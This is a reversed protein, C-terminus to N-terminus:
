AYCDKNTRYYPIVDRIDKIGSLFCLLKEFHIKYGGQPAYGENITEYYWDLNKANDHLEDNKLSGVIVESLNPFVLEVSNLENSEDENKCLEKKINNKMFFFPKNGFEQSLYKLTDLEINDGMEFKGKVILNDNEFKSKKYKPNVIVNSCNIEENLFNICDKYNKKLFFTNIDKILEIKKILNNDFNNEFFLLLEKCNELIKACIYKMFLEISELLEDYDIFSMECNIEWYESLGNNKKNFVPGFSFVKEFSKTFTKLHYKSDTILRKEEGYFNMSFSNIDNYNTIIPLQINNFGMKNYFNYVEYSIYSRFQTIAKFINSRMRFHPYKRLINIPVKENNLIYNNSTKGLINAKLVIIKIEDSNKNKIYGSIKVADGNKVNSFDKFSDKLYKEECIASVKKFFSGDTILLLFLNKNIDKRQEVWGKIKIEKQSINKEFIKKINEM